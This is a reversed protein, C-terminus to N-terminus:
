GDHHDEDRKIRSPMIVGEFKLKKKGTFVGIAGDKKSFKFIKTQQAKDRFTKSLRVLLKLDLCIQKLEKDWKTPIVQEINPYVNDKLNEDPINLTVSSQGKLNSKTYPADVPFILFDKSFKTSADMFRLIHGDCAIYRNNTSDYFIGQLAKRTLETSCAPFLAKIDLYEEIPINIKM